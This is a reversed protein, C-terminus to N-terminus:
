MIPKPHTNSPSITTSDYTESESKLFGVAAGEESYSLLMQRTGESLHGLYIGVPGVSYPSREALANHQKKKKKGRQKKFFFFFFVLCSVHMILSHTM